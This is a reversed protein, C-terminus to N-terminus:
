LCYETQIASSTRPISQDRQEPLRQYYVFSEDQNELLMTKNIQQFINEERRPKATLISTSGAHIYTLVPFIELNWFEHKRFKDTDLTYICESLFLICVIQM